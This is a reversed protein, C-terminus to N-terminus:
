PGQELQDRRTENTHSSALIADREGKKIDDWSRCNEVEIKSANRRDSAARSGFCVKQLYLYYRDQLVLENTLDVSSKNLTDGLRGALDSTSTPHLQNISDQSTPRPVPAAAM